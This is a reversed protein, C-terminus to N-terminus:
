QGVPRCGATSHLRAPNRTVTGTTVHAKGGRDVVIEPAGWDAVCLRDDHRRPSEGFSLGTVLPQLRRVMLEGDMLIPRRRVSAASHLFRSHVSALALEPVM